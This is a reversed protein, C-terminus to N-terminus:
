DLVMCYLEDGARVEGVGEPVVALANSRALATLLLQDQDGEPTATYGEQPDGSLTVRAFERKGSPSLWGHTVKARIAPRYYDEWGAMKRLCPRVFIEYGIQAAVPDGPLCFIPVNDLTGVGFQKGPSMAVNDFRVTGLPSLVEKVTDGSGYSLGGTTVLVDARMLQNHLVESLTTPDDPVASVRFTTAGADAVACALAHGNADFVAGVDARQGPEVLEDGISVIVVRPKPRVQVRLRGVGALLAVQRADIRTGSTLIESGQAVDEGRYIINEGVEAECFVSVVRPDQDTVDLPVVTDAGGPLPAGSAIRLCAGPVLAVPQTDGARLEGLVDLKAPHADNAGELDEARVAYGDCTAQDAVPRDFPAMVTEALVCGVTDPLVVGLPALPAVHDLCLNLHDAVSRM